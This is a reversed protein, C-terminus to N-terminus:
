GLTLDNDTTIIRLKTNDAVLKLPLITNKYEEPNVERLAKQMAIAQYKPAVFTAVERVYERNNRNHTAVVIVTVENTQWPQQDIDLSIHM